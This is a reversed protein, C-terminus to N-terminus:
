DRPSPSTYLLCSGANNILIDIPGLNKETKEIIKDMDELNSLDASITEIKGGDEELVEKAKEMKEINRGTIMIKSSEKSFLRATELGIGSTGGTIIVVKGDLNYSM